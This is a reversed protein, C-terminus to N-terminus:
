FCFVFPAQELGIEISRVLNSKASFLNFTGHYILVPLASRFFLLAILPWLCPLRYSLAQHAGRCEAYRCETYCCEAYHREGYCYIFRSVWCFSLTTISLTTISFTMISLTAAGMSTGVNIVALIKAAAVLLVLTLLSVPM